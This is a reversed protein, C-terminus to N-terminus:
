LCSLGEIYGSFILAYPRVPEQGAERLDDALEAVHQVDLVRRQHASRDLEHPRQEGVEPAQQKAEVADAQAAGVRPARGNEIQNRRKSPV